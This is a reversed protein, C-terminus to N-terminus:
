SVPVLHQLFLTHFLIIQHQLIDMHCHLSSPNVLFNPVLTVIYHFQFGLDATQLAFLLLEFVAHDPSLVVLRSLSIGTAKQFCEISKLLALVSVDNNNNNNNRKSNQEKLTFNQTTPMGPPHMPAVAVCSKTDGGMM